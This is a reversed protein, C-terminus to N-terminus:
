GRKIWLVNTTGRRVLRYYESVALEGPPPGDIKYLGTQSALSLVLLYESASPPGFAWVASAVRRTFYVVLPLFGEIGPHIHPM